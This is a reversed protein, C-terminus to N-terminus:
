AARRTGHAQCAHADPMLALFSRRGVASSTGTADKWSCHLETGLGDKRVERTSQM